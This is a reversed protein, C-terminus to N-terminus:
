NKLADGYPIRWLLGRHYDTLWISDHGFRLSDGGAGTWQRVVRNRKPDILTLPVDFVTAWVSGAGYCLDGGPGPIGVTITAVVQKSQADIRSVTGDGQNLTWVSGSGATLFRPKPGVPVSGLVAGTAADVATLVNTEFGSIWIKGESFIPNFSGPAIQIKQRVSNTAPDIRSLTGKGDTVMWISDDSAAIGGEPGAPGAALMAVIKNTRVDIRALSTEKTCLPVWLSGFAFEIGACAEGPLDVTAIVKDTAPDIRKISYPKAGAVWVSEDGVLVWDASGGIKFTASPKLLAFPRQVERVGPRAVQEKPRCGQGFAALFAVLAFLVLRQRPVSTATCLFAKM